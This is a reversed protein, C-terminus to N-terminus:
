AARDYYIRKRRHVFRIYDNVQKMPQLPALRYVNYEQLLDMDLEMHFLQLAKGSVSDPTYLYKSLDRVEGLCMNPDIYWRNVVKTTDIRWVDYYGVLMRSSLEDRCDYLDLTIPFWWFPCSQYVNAWVGGNGMDRGFLGERAINMRKYMLYENDLHYRGGCFDLHYLYRPPEVTEGLASNVQYKGTAQFPNYKM